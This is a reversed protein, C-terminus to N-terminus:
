AERVSAGVRYGGRGGDDGIADFGLGGGEGIGCSDKVSM